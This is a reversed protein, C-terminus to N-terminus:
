IFKGYDWKAANHPTHLEKLNKPKILSIRNKRRGVEYGILKATSM